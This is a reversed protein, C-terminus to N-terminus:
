QTTVATALAVVVAGSVIATAGTATATASLKNGAMVAPQNNITAAKNHSESLQDSRWHMRGYKRAARTWNLGLSAVFVVELDYDWFGGITCCWDISGRSQCVGVGTGVSGEIDSGESRGIIAGRCKGLV